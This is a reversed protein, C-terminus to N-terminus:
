PTRTVFHVGEGGELSFSGPEGPAVDIVLEPEGWREYLKRDVLFPSASIVGLKLDEDAELLEGRTLCTAPSGDGCGASQFFAIPGHKRRLREILELAEPTATVREATTVKTVTRPKEITGM